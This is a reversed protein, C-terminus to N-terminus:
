TGRCTCSRCSPRDPACARGGARARWRPRCPRAAPGSLGPVVLKCSEEILGIALTPMAGLALITRYELVSAAIVGLAGGVIFCWLLMYSPVEHDREYVYATFVIPGLSAGIVILSPVLNINKSVLTAWDLLSWIVVGAFLTQFWPRRLLLMGARTLREGM